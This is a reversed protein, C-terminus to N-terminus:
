EDDRETNKKNEPRAPKETPQRKKERTKGPKPAENLLMPDIEGGGATEYTGLFELMELDPAASKEKGAAGMALLLVLSGAAALVAAPSNRQWGATSNWTLM